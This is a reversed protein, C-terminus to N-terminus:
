EWSIFNKHIKNWYVKKRTEDLNFCHSCLLLLFLIDLLVAAKRAVFM